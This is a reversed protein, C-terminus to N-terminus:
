EAPGSLPFDAIIRDQEHFTSHDVFTAVGTWAWLRISRLLDKKM